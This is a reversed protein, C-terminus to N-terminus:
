KMPIQVIRCDKKVTDEVGLPKYRLTMAGSKIHVLTYGPRFEKVNYGPAKQEELRRNLNYLASPMCIEHVPSHDNWGRIGNHFHGHFLALVRNHRKLIKYLEKQGNEPKM